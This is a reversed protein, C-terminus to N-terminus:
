KNQPNLPIMPNYVVATCQCTGKMASSMFGQWSPPASHLLSSYLWLIDLSEYHQTYVDIPKIEKIRTDASLSKSSLKFPKIVDAFDGAQAIAKAIM